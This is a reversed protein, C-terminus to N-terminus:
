YKNNDNSHEDLRKKWRIRKGKMMSPSPKIGITDAVLCVDTYEEILNVECEEYGIPTWNEGKLIRAMKAAAKGLECAEEALQMYLAEKSLRTPM